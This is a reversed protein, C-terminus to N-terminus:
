RTAFASHRGDGGFRRERKAWDALVADVDTPTLDPWLKDVFRIESFALRWLMFNSLRRESTRVM